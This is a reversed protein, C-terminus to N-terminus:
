GDLPTRRAGAMPAQDTFGHGIPRRWLINGYVLLYEQSSETKIRAHIEGSLGGPAM